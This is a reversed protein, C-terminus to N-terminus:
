SKVLRRERRLQNIHEKNKHYQKRRNNNINIMISEYNDIIFDFKEKKRALFVTSNSYLYDYLNFLDNKTSWCLVNCNNGREMINQKINISATIKESISQLFNYSGCTIDMKINLKTISISGDGDFYGRIFDKDFRQDMNPYCITLSKHPICGLKNLDFCLQKSNPAFTCFIEGVNLEGPHKIAEAFNILHEIDKKNLRISLKYLDQDINGDAFIFGLWYAKQENDINEFFDLDFNYKRQRTEVGNAKLIKSIYGPTRHYKEALDSLLSGQNYELMLEQINPKPYQNNNRLIIDNQKLIRLIPQCSVDYQKGIQHTDLGGQYKNIIDKIELESFIIKTPM